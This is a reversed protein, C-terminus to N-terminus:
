SEKKTKPTPDAPPTAAGLSHVLWRDGSRTLAVRYTQALGAGTTSDAWRVTVLASREGSAPATKPVTLAEVAALTFRGTELQPFRAGDASLAAIVARDGKGYATLFAEVTPRAADAAAPDAEGPDAAPAKGPAPAAVFAPRAAVALGGKTAAVPVALHVWGAGTRAAVTIVAYGPGTIDLDAPIVSTVTQTGKGDWGGTLDLGYGATRAAWGAPSTEDYTLYDAVFRAAFGEAAVTPYAPSTTTPAPAGSAAPGAFLSVIGRGLVLVVAAWLLCRGAILVPRSNRM